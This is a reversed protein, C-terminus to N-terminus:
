AGLLYFSILTFNLVTLFFLNLDLTVSVELSKNNKVIGISSYFVLRTVVWVKPTGREIKRTRKGLM